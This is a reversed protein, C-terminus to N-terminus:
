AFQGGLERAQDARGSLALSAATDNVNSCGNTTGIIFGKCYHPIGAPLVHRGYNSTFPTAWFVHPCMAIVLAVKARVLPLLGRASTKGLTSAYARRMTSVGSSKGTGVSSLALLPNPPGGRGLGAHRDIDMRRYVRVIGCNTSADRSRGTQISYAPRIHFTHRARFTRVRSTKDSSPLADYQEDNCVSQRPPERLQAEALVLLGICQPRILRIEFSYHGSRKWKLRLFENRKLPCKQAPASGIM